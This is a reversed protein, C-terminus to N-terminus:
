PQESNLGHRGVNSAVYSFRVWHYTSMVVKMEMVSGEFYTELVSYNNNGKGYMNSGESKTQM